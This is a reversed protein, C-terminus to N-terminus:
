PASARSGRAILKKAIDLEERAAAEPSILSFAESAFTGQLNEARLLIDILDIRSFAVAHKLAAARDHNISASYQVLSQMINQFHEGAAADGASICMKTTKLLTLDCCQGATGRSLLHEVFEVKQEPEIASTAFIVGVGEDSTQVTPATQCLTLAMLLDKRGITIAEKVAAGTGGFGDGIAGHLVLLFLTDLYGARVATM